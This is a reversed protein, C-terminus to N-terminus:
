FAGLVFDSFGLIIGSVIVGVVLDQATQRFSSGAVASLLAFFLCFMPLIVFYLAVKRPLPAWSHWNSLWTLGFSALGPLYIVGIVAALIKNAIGKELIIGTTIMLLFLSGLVVAAIYVGAHRSRQVPGRTTEKITSVLTQELRALHQRKLLDLMQPSLRYREGVDHIDAGVLVELLANSIHQHLAGVFDPSMGEVRREAM